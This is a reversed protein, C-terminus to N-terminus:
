LQGAAKCLCSSAGNEMCETVCEGTQGVRSWSLIGDKARCNNGM